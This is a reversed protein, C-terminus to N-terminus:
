RYTTDGVRSLGDSHHVGVARRTRDVELAAGCNWERERRAGGRLDVHFQQHFV